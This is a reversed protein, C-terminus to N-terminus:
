VSVGLPHAEAKVIVSTIDDMQLAHRAFRRAEQYLGEVM